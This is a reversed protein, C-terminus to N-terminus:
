NFFEDFNEVVPFFLRKLSLLLVAENLGDDEIHRILVARAPNVDLPRCPDGFDLLKLDYDNTM